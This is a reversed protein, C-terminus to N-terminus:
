RYRPRGIGPIGTPQEEISGGLYPSRLNDMGSSEGLIKKVSEYAM